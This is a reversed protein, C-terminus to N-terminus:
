MLADLEVWGRHRRRHEIAGTLATESQVQHGLAEVLHDVCVVALATPPDAENLDAFSSSHRFGRGGVGEGCRLPPSSSVGNQKSGRERHPNPPPTKSMACIFGNATRFSSIMCGVTSFIPSTVTTVMLVSCSSAPM